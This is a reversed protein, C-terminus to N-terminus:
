AQARKWVLINSSGWIEPPLTRITLTDGEITFQREVTTGILNTFVCVEIHHFVRDGKIEYPGAYALFDAVSQVCQAANESTRPPPVLAPRHIGTLVASMRGAPTYILYGKPDPGFRPKEDGKGEDINFTVLEWAGLVDSPTAAQAERGGLAAAVGFSASFKLLDKRSFAM